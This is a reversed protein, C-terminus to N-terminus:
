MRRGRSPASGADMVAGALLAEQAAAEAAQLAPAWSEPWVGPTALMARVQALEEPALRAMDATAKRFVETAVHGLPAKKRDYDHSRAARAALIWLQDVGNVPPPRPETQFAIQAELSGWGSASNYGTAPLAPIPWAMRIASALAPASGAPTRVTVGTANNPAAMLREIVHALFMSRLPAPGAAEALPIWSQWSQSSIPCPMLTTKTDEMARKVGHTQHRMLVLNIMEKEPIGPAIEADAHCAGAARLGMRAWAEAPTEQVPRARLLVTLAPSQTWATDPDGLRVGLGLPHDKAASALHTWSGETAARFIKEEPTLPFVEDLAETLRKAEKSGLRERWLRALGDKKPRVGLKAIAKVMEPDTVADYARSVDLGGQVFQGLLAIDGHRAAAEALTMFNSKYDVLTPLVDPRTRLFQDVVGTFGGAIMDAYFDQVTNRTKPTDEKSAPFAVGKWFLRALIRDRWDAGEIEEWPEGPIPWRGVPRAGWKISPFASALAVFAEPGLRGGTRELEELMHEYFERQGPAVEIPSQGRGLDYIRNNHFNSANGNALMALRDITWLQLLPLRATM